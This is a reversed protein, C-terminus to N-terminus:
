LCDGCQHVRSVSDEHFGRCVRPNPKIEEPTQMENVERASTDNRHKLRQQALDYTPSNRERARGSQAQEQVKPECLNLHVSVADERRGHSLDQFSPGSRFRFGLNEVRNRYTTSTWRTAKRFTRQRTIPLIAAIGRSCRCDQFATEFDQLQGALM